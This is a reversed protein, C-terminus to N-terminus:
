AQCPNAQERSGTEQEASVRGPTGLYKLYKRAKHQDEESADLWRSETLNPNLDDPNGM